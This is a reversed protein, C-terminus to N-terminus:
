TRRGDLPRESERTSIRVDESAMTPLILVEKWHGPSTRLASTLSLIQGFYTVFCAMPVLNKTGISRNSM